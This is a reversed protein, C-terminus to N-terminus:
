VNRTELSRRTEVIEHDGLDGSKDKKKNTLRSSFNFYINIVQM